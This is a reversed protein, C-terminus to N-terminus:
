FNVKLNYELNFSLINVITREDEVDEVVEVVDEVAEVVDVTVHEEVEEVEEVDAMVHEVLDKNVIDGLAEVDAVANVVLVHPPQLLLLILTAM